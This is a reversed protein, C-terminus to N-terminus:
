PMNLLVRAVYDPNYVTEMLGPMLAVYVGEGIFALAAGVVLAGHAIVQSRGLLLGLGVLLGLVCLGEAPSLVETSPAISFSHMAIARGAVLAVAGLMLAIQARLVTALMAEADGGDHAARLAAPMPADGGSRARVRKVRAEFDANHSSM